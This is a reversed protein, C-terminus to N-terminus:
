KQNNTLYKKTLYERHQEFFRPMSNIRDLIYIYIDHNGEAYNYRPNYGVHVETAGMMKFFDRYRTRQHAAYTFVYAALTYYNKITDLRDPYQLRKQLTAIGNSTPAYQVRQMNWAHEMICYFFCGFDIMSETTVNISVPAISPLGREGVGCCNAFIGVSMIGRMVTFFHAPANDVNYNLTNHKILEEISVIVSEPEVAEIIPDSIPKPNNALKLQEGIETKPASKKRLINGTRASIFYGEPLEIDM